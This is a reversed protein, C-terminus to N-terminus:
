RICALLYTFSADSIWMKGDGEVGISIEDTEVAGAGDYVNDIHYGHNSIVAGVKSEGDYGSLRISESGVSNNSVSLTLTIIPLGTSDVGDNRLVFQVIKFINDTFYILRGLTGLLAQKSVTFTSKIVKGSLIRQYDVFKADLLRVSAILGIEECNIIITSHTKGISITNACHKLISGFLPPVLIGDMKPGMNEIVALRGGDSAALNGDYNIGQYAIKAVDNSVAMSVKKWATQLAPVDWTGIPQCELEAVPFEEIKLYVRFEYTGNTTVVVGDGKRVITVDDTTSNKVIANFSKYDILFFSAVDDLRSFSVDGFDILMYALFNTTALYVKHNDPDIRFAVYDAVKMIKNGVASGLISLVEVLRDRKLIM